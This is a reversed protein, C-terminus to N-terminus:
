ARITEKIIACVITWKFLIIDFGIQRERKQATPPLLHGARNKDPTGDGHKRPTFFGTDYIGVSFPRFTINGKELKQIEFVYRWGDLLSTIYLGISSILGICLIITLVIVIGTLTNM